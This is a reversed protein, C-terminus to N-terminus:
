SLKKFVAVNPSQPSKGGLNKIFSLGMPASLQTKAPHEFLLLGEPKLADQAIDFIKAQFQSILAYPPDCFIIDAFHSTYPYKLADDCRILFSKADVGTSKAVRALNDTILPILKRDKEVFLGGAAGRSVAELGYAGSGAFLDLFHCGPIRAALSNFIAQRMQDTAPRLQPTDLTKLQISRAIGGTIRM